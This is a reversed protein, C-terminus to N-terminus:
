LRKYYCQSDKIIACPDKIIARPEKLLQSPITAREQDAQSDSQTKSISDRRVKLGRHDYVYGPSGEVEEPSSDKETKKVILCMIM